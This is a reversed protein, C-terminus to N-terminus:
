TSKIFFEYSLMETIVALKWFPYTHKAEYKAAHCENHIVWGDQM